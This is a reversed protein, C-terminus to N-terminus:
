GGESQAFEQQWTVYDHPFVEFLCLQTTHTQMHTM